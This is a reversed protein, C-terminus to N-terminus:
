SFDTEFKALEVAVRLEIDELISKLHPDMVLSQQRAITAQIKQLQSESVEGFLISTRLEELADLTLHATRIAKKRNAEEDSVEQIMLMQGVDSLPAAPAAQEAASAEGNEALEDLMGGFGSSSSVSRRKKLSAINSYPQGSEIKM